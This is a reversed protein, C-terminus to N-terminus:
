TCMYSHANQCCAKTNINTNIKFSDSHLWTSNEAEKRGSKAIKLDGYIFNYVTCKSKSNCKMKTKIVDYFENGMIWLM